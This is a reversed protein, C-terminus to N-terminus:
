GSSSRRVGEAAVRPVWWALVEAPARLEFPSLLLDGPEIRLVDGDLSARAAPGLPRTVVGDGVGIVAVVGVEPDWVLAARQDADVVVEEPVSGPVDRRYRARVEDEGGVTARTTGGLLHVVVVILVIGGGAIPLLWEIPM